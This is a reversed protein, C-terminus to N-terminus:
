PENEIASEKESSTLPCASSVKHLDAAQAFQLSNGDLTFKKLCGKFGTAVEHGGELQQAPYGGLFLEGTMNTGHRMPSSVSHLEDLTITVNPSQKIVRVSHWNM